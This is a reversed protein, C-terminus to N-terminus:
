VRILILLLMVTTESFLNFIVRGYCSIVIVRTQHVINLFINCPHFSRTIIYSSCRMRTFSPKACYVLLMEQIM